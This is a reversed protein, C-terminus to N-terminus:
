PKAPAAYQAALYNSIEAVAEDDIPAGFAKRMKVVEAKWGDPTLFTSNMIIYDSTHCANCAAITLDGGPGPKLPLPEDAFASGSCILAAMLGIALAKM